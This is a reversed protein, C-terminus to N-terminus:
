QDARASDSPARDAAIRRKGERIAEFLKDFPIEGSDVDSSTFKKHEIAGDIREAKSLKKVKPPADGDFLQFSIFIAIAVVPILYFLKRM